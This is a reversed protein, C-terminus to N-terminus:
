KKSKRTRANVPNVPNTVIVDDGLRVITSPEVRANAIANATGSLEVQNSLIM